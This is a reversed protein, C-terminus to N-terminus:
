RALALIKLFQPTNAHRVWEYLAMEVSCSVGGAQLIKEIGASKDEERRSSVADTLLHVQYGAQLLGLATQCICIHAEVGCLLAQRRGSRELQLMFDPVDCCSFSFKDAPSSPLLQQLELIVPGLKGANQTTAILPVELEAAAKLLVTIRSIIANPNPQIDLLKQQMDVILVASTEANLLLPHPLIPNM